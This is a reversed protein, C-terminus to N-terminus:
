TFYRDLIWSYTCSVRLCTNRHSGLEVGTSMQHSFHESPRFHNRGVSYMGRDIAIDFASLPSGCIYSLCDYTAQEITTLCITRQILGHRCLDRSLKTLRISAMNLFLAVLRFPESSHHAGQKVCIPNHKSTNYFGDHNVRLLSANRNCFRSAVGLITICYCGM